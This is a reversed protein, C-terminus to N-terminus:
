EAVTYADESVVGNTGNISAVSQITKRIITVAEQIREEGEDGPFREDSEEVTVKFFQVDRAMETDEENGDEGDDSKEEASPQPARLGVGLNILNLVETKTLDFPKLRRVLEPMWKPTEELNSVHPTMEKTYRDFKSSSTLGLMTM